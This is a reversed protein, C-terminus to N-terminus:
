NGKYRSSGGRIGCISQHNLMMETTGTTGEHPNQHLRGASNRSAKLNGKTMLGVQFIPWSFAKVVIDM